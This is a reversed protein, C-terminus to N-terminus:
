STQPSQLITPLDKKVTRSELDVKLSETCQESARILEDIAEAGEPFLSFVQFRQSDFGPRIPTSRSRERQAMGKGGHNIISLEKSGSRRPATSRRTAEPLLRFSFWSAAVFFLLM